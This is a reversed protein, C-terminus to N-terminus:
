VGKNKDLEINKVLDDDAKLNNIQKIIDDYLDYVCEYIDFCSEKVDDKKAKELLTYKNGVKYDLSDFLDNANVSKNSFNLKNKENDDNFVTICDNTVTIKIKRTEM